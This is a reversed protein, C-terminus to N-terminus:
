EGYLKAVYVEIGDTGQREYLESDRIVAKGTRSPFFMNTGVRSDFSEFLYQFKSNKVAGTINQRVPIISGAFVLQQSLFGMTERRHKDDVVVINYRMLLDDDPSKHAHGRIHRSDKLVKATSRRALFEQTNDM